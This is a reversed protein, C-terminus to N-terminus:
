SQRFYRRPDAVPKRRVWYSTSSRDITREMPDRGLVRMLLGTPTLIAYYVCALLLFSVSWGVPRFAAMWARYLTSGLPESSAAIAALTIGIAAGVSSAVGRGADTPLALSLSALGAVIAAPIFGIAMRSRPSEDVCVLAVLTAIALFGAMGFLGSAHGPLFWGLGTFFIALLGAFVLRDRSTPASTPSHTRM